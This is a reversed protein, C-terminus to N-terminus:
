GDERFQDDLWRDWEHATQPGLKSRNKKVSSELLKRMPESTLKGRIPWLEDLVAASERYKGRLSLVGCKGALGFARLEAEGDGQAALKEFLTMARDFDGERLHIQALQQEARLTFYEKEPFYEIVSQWAAETGIQSALYWQRLVSSQKPVNPPGAKADTLLSQPAVTSWAAITGAVFAAVVGVAIAV